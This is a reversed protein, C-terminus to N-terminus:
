HPDKHRFHGRYLVLIMPDIGQLETLRCRTKTHYTLEYDPFRAGPVIDPRMIIRRAHEISHSTVYTAVVCLVLFTARDIGRPEPCEDLCERLTAHDFRREGHSDIM